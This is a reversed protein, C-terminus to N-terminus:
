RLTTEPPQVTLRHAVNQPASAASLAWQINLGRNHPPACFVSSSDRPPSRPRAARCSTSVGGPVHGGGREYNGAGAGGRAHSPCASGYALAERRENLACASGYALAGRMENLAWASGYALAGRMENLACASSYALAGRENLACASGYALAGKRENSACASGYTLAKRRGNLACASGYALAGRRENLACASGYALAGRRENLACASGNWPGESRQARQAGTTTPAAEAEPWTPGHARGQGRNGRGGRRRAGKWEGACDEQATRGCLGPPCWACGSEGRDYALLCACGSM